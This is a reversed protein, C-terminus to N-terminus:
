TKQTLRQDETQGTNWDNRGTNLILHPAPHALTPHTTFSFRTIQAYSSSSIDPALSQILMNSQLNHEYSHHQM